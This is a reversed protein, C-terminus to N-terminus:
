CVHRFTLFLLTGIGHHLWSPWRPSVPILLVASSSSIRVWAPSGMPNATWRRLWEAVEDCVCCKIVFYAEALTRGPQLIDAWDRNERLKWADYWVGSRELTYGRSMKAWNFYVQRAISPLSCTNFITSIGHPTTRWRHEIMEHLVKSVSRWQVWIDPWRVHAARPSTQGPQPWARATNHNTAPTGHRLSVPSTVVLWRLTRPESTRQSDNPGIYPSVCRSLLGLNQLHLPPPLHPFFHSSILLYLYRSLRSSAMM